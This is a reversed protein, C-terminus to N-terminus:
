GLPAGQLVVLAQAVRELEDRGARVPGEGREWATLDLVTSAFTGGGGGLDGRGIAVAVHQELAPTVDALTVITPEGALNASTAAIPPLAYAGVPVRLGIPGPAGGTLWPLRGEPNDVILTFPGPLLASVAWSARASLEPFEARLEAVTAFVVATQQSTPRGKAAYLTAVADADTAIAALGYVTDTPVIVLQGQELAKRVYGLEATERKPDKVVLM